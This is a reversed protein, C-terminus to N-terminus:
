SPHLLSFLRAFDAMDGVNELNRSAEMAMEARHKGLIPVAQDLFKEELSLTTMPRTLSGIAHQVHITKEQSAGCHYRFTLYAEDDHIAEDTAVNVKDRVSAIAVDHCAQDTFQSPGAHGRVLAVACGHYLSFIAELGSKPHRISCLRVCQPNALVDVTDLKEAIAKDEAFAELCGDILPHIVIGCPYPKFTNELIQWKGDQALASILQENVTSSVLKAWSEISRTCSEFGHLALSAALIGNQAARGMHLTKTDTGFMARIGGAMSCAHGLAAAFRHSDLDLTKAVAAAAGFSGTTGTIHWGDRYHGPSIANGVACQAEVGCVFALLFEKGSLHRHEAWSFLAALPTGSPHIVTRLHTDDYDAATLAVANLLTADEVSARDVRGLLTAQDAHNILSFVKQASSTQSSGLGCGLSNLIGRKAQEVVQEPLDDYKLQSLFLALQATYDIVGM